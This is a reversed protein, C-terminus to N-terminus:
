NQLKKRKPAPGLGNLFTEFIDDLFQKTLNQGFFVKGDACPATEDEASSNEFTIYSKQVMKGRSFSANENAIVLVQQFDTSEINFGYVLQKLVRDLYTGTPNVINGGADFSPIKSPDKEKSKLYAPIVQEVLFPTFANRNELIKVQHDAISKAIRNDYADKEAQPADQEPKNFDTYSKTLIAFKVIQKAIFYVTNQLAFPIIHEVVSFHSALKEIQSVKYPGGEQGKVFSGFNNLSVPNKIEDFEDATFGDYDDCSCIGKTRSSANFNHGLAIFALGANKWHDFSGFTPALVFVAWEDGFVPLIKLFEISPESFKEFINEHQLPLDRKHFDCAFELKGRYGSQHKVTSAFRAAKEVNKVDCIIIIIHNVNEYNQLLSLADDAKLDSFIALKQKTNLKSFVSM